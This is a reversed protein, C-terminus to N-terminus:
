QICANGYFFGGGDYPYQSTGVDSNEDSCFMDAETYEGPNYSSNIWEEWSMGDEGQYTYGNINFTIIKSGDVTSYELSIDGFTVNFPGDARNSGNYIVYLDIYDYGGKEIKTGRFNEGFLYPTSNYDYLIDIDSCAADVLSPTAATSDTTSAECKIHSNEGEINNWNIGRLYADYKGTNHIYIRFDVSQGPETFVIAMDSITDSKMCGIAGIGGNNGMSSVVKCNSSSTDVSNSLSSFSVKFDSSSPTVSASSSISLTSSFAAFGLSMGVIAIVLAVIVILKQKRQYMM